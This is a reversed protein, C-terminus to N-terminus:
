KWSPERPRGILLEITGAAIRKLQAEDQYAQELVVLGRVVVLVHEAAKATNGNFEGHKSGDEFTQELLSQVSSLLHAFARRATDDLGDGEGPQLEMLGRTTPCGRPPSGTRFNRIAAEFFRSLRDQLSGESLTQALMALYEAAYAEYARLFLAEKSGYANYLSGRLVGVEAAIDSLNTGRVGKRCFQEFAQRLVKADDFQRPRVQGGHFASKSAASFTASEQCPTLFTNSATDFIIVTPDFILSKGWADYSVQRQNLM